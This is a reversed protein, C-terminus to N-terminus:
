RVRYNQIESPYIPTIFSAPEVMPAVHLQRPALPAPLITNSDAYGVPNVFGDDAMGRNARARPYHHPCNRDRCDPSHPGACSVQINSLNSKQQELAIEERPLGISVIRKFLQGANFM